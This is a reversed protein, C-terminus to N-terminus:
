EDRLESLMASGHGRHEDIILRRVQDMRAGIILGDDRDIQLLFPAHDGVFHSLALETGHDLRILTVALQESCIM